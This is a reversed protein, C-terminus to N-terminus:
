KLHHQFVEELCDKRQSIPVANYCTEELTEEEPLIISKTFHMKCVKQNERLELYEANRHVHM